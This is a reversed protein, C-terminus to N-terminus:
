KLWGSNDALARQSASCECARERTTPASHYAADLAEGAANLVSGCREVGYQQSSFAVPLLRLAPVLICLKRRAAMNPSAAAGLAANSDPLMGLCSENVSDMFTDIHVTCGTKVVRNACADGSEHFQLLEVNGGVDDFM